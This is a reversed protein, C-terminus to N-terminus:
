TNLNYIYINTSASDVSFIANQCSFTNGCTQDYNQSTNRKILSLAGRVRGIALVYRSSAISTSVM